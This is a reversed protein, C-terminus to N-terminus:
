DVGGGGEAVWEAQFGRGVRELRGAARRADRLHEGRPAIVTGILMPPANPGEPDEDETEQVERGGDEEDDSLQLPPHRHEEEGTDLNNNQAAGPTGFVLGMPCMYSYLVVPGNDPYEVMTRLPAGRDLRKATDYATLATATLHALSLTQLTATDDEAPSNDEEDSSSASPPSTSFTKAPQSKPPQSSSSSSLIPTLARDTLHLALHPYQNPLSAM